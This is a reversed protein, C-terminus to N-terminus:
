EAALELRQEDPRLVDRLENGIASGVGTHGAEVQNPLGATIHVLERIQLEPKAPQGDRRLFVATDAREGVDRGAHTDGRYKGTNSPAKEVLTLNRDLDNGNGARRLDSRVDANGVHDHIQDGGSRRQADVPKRSIAM